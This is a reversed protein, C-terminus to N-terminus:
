ADTRDLTILQILNRSQMYNYVIVNIINYSYAWIRRRAREHRSSTQYHTVHNGSQSWTQIHMSPNSHLFRWITAMLHQHHSVHMGSFTITYVSLYTWDNSFLTVYLEHLMNNCQTVSILIDLVCKVAIIYFATNKVTNDASIM